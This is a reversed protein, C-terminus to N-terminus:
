PFRRSVLDCAFLWAALHCAKEDGEDCRVYEGAYRDEALCATIAPSMDGTYIGLLAAYLPDRPDHDVLEKLREYATKPIDTVLSAGLIVSDIGPADPAPLTVEGEPPEGLAESLEGRLWIAMAQLHAQYDRLGPSYVDPTRRGVRDKGGLAFSASLWRAILGPKYVGRYDGTPKGMHWKHKKGYEIHGDILALDKTRWACALLGVGMDGSWDSWKPNDSKMPKGPRRQYRGPEVEAARMDVGSVGSVACYKGTWLACDGGTRCLWGNKPDRIALAEAKAAGLADRLLGVREDPAPVKEPHKPGCCALALALLVLPTRM